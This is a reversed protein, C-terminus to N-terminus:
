TPWLLTTALVLSQHLQPAVCFGTAHEKVVAAVVVKVVTDVTPLYALWNVTSLSVQAPDSALQGRGNRADKKLGSRAADRVSELSQGTCKCRQCFARFIDCDSLENM